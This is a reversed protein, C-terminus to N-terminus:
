FMVGFNTLRYNPSLLGNQKKRDLIVKSGKKRKRRQRESEGKKGMGTKIFNLAIGRGERFIYRHVTCDAQMYDNYHVAGKLHLCKM